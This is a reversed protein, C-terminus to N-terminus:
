KFAPFVRFTVYSIPPSISYSNNLVFRTVHCSLFNFLHTEDQTFRTLEHIFCCVFNAFFNDTFKKLMHSMSINDFNLEEFNNKIERTYQKIRKQHANLHFFKAHIKKNIVDKVVTVVIFLSIILSILKFCLKKTTSGSSGFTCKLHVIQHSQSLNLTSLSSCFQNHRLSLDHFKYLGAQPM